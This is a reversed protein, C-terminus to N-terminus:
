WRKKAVVGGLPGIKSEAEESALVHVEARTREAARLLAELEAYRGNDRRKVIEAETVIVASANGADVAEKVDAEGYALREKGLAELASEVLAMERLTSSERLLKAVEPRALLERIATKEVASITTLVTVKKVEAPLEKEVYEKWFAPAGAVVHRYGRSLYEQIQAVIEKYFNATKKEDLGKKPVDGKLRSLEEVGRRTVGYFRAEERDFLAVLIAADEKKAEELKRLQYSPWEAKHITIESGPELVFSHHEGRPIDDPGNSITGLVRLSTGDYETKEVRVALFVRKRTVKAKSEQGDGIRVKRETYGRVEDGPTIVGALVWLDDPREAQLFVGQKLDKKIIRM